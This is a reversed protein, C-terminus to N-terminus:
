CRYHRSIYSPLQQSSSAGADPNGQSTGGSEATIVGTTMFKVMNSNFVNLASMQQGVGLTAPGGNPQAWWMTCQTGNTGQNCFSAAATATSELLPFIGSATYPALQATLAM